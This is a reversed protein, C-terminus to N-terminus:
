ERESMDLHARNVLILNDLDRLQAVMEGFATPFQEKLWTPRENDRLM